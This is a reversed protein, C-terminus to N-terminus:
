ECVNLKIGSHCHGVYRLGIQEVDNCAGGCNILM